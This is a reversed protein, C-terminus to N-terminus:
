TNKLFLYVTGRYTSDGSVYDWSMTGANDAVGTINGALDFVYDRVVIGAAGIHSDIAALRGDLDFSNALTVGNGYDLANVPGFAEYTLGTALTVPTALANARTTVLDVRGIADRGYDVIRGSPYTMSVMRDALDYGYETVYTQAGVM